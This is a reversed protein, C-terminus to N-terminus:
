KELESTTKHNLRHFIKIFIPNIIKTLDILVTNGTYEEVWITKYKPAKQIVKAEAEALYLLLNNRLNEWLPKGLRAFGGSKSGECL